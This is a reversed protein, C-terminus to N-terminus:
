RLRCPVSLCSIPQAQLLPRRTLQLRLGRALSKLFAYGGVSLMKPASGSARVRSQATLGCRQPKRLQRANALARILAEQAADEALDPDGSARYAEAAAIPRFRSVLAGAAAEIGSLHQALLEETTRAM